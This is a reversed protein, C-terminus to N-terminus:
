AVALAMTSVPVTLQQTELRDGLFDSIGAERGHISGISSETFVLGSVSKFVGNARSAVVVARAMLRSEPHLAPPFERIVSLTKPVM